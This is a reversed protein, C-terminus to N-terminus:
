YVWVIEYRLLAVDGKAPKVERWEFRSPDVRSVEAVEAELQAVEAELGEIRVLDGQESRPRGLISGLRPRRRRGGLIGSLISTGLDAWKGLRRNAMQQRKAEIEARKKALRTELDRRRSQVAPMAAIRAVFAGADEGPHSSQRVVPDYLIEIALRDDIRERLAREISEVGYAALFSPLGEYRVGPPATDELLGEGLAMPESEIVESLSAGDPLRFAMEHTEEETPAGDIKLRAAAKVFLYPTALGGGQVRAFRPQLPASLPPAVVLGVAGADVAVASSADSTLGAGGAIGPREAPESAVTETTAPRAGPLRDDVAPGSVQRLARVEDLTLPGRLYSMAWRSHILAPAPRHVDHVLFVRKQVGAIMSDFDFTSGADELAGQVGEKVRDQDQTTQLRGIAWFGINALGRYDLDVPNQTALLVGVGYARAQKLLTLLPKKTPPNAVPPFYGFIEDMYVLCRLKGTGPQRRMWTVIKNLLLATVMVRQEDDLHATYVVTVAPKGDVGRVWREIDIREGERWAEFPPSALLNNLALMLEKRQSGPYFTELPLAGVTDVPPNGVLGILSELHLDQGRRWADEILTFLLIYERGSIPDSKIQVLSLLATVIADIEGRLEEEETEFDVGPAELSEILNVPIGASSGPTLIRLTHGAVYIKVDAPAIGWEGLGKAWVGATEEAMQERTKGERAAQDGDVWPLFQEPALRDFTLAVNTMDGKPDIVIVPIGAKLVEEVVGMSLGTKGSGTMGIVIGHTTFDAPDVLFPEGMTKTTPDFAKGLYLGDAM